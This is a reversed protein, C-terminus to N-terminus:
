MNASSPQSVIGFWAFCLNMINYITEITLMFKRSFSHGSRWLQPTHAIAYTAAFFSGNLWRRRQAIFEPLADPVDTEGVAGRVYRLVRYGNLITERVFSSGSAGTQIRKRWWSSVFFESLLCVNPTTMCHVCDECGRCSRRLSSGFCIGCPQSCVCIQPLFIQIAVTFSREKSILRLLDLVTNMTRYRLTGIPLSHELSRHTLNPFGPYLKVSWSVSIASCRSRLSIWSAM